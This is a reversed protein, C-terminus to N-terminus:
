HVLPKLSERQLSRPNGDATEVLYTFILLEIGLLRKRWNCLPADAEAFM